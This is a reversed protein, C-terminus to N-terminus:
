RRAASSQELNRRYVQIDPRAVYSKFVEEGWKQQLSALGNAASTLYLQANDRDNAKQSALGAILWARWNSESLGAGAFFTQAHKAMDIATKADGAALAAEALALQTRAILLPDALPVAADSAQQCLAQGAPARGELAQSLGMLYKGQVAVFKDEAGALELAQRSQAGAEPLRRESLAIQAEVLSIAAQLATFSSGKQKAIDSAEGLLKRAQDNQGLWWLTAGLNMSAYGQYLQNGMSKYLEYSKGLHSRAEAFSEQDFLLNGISIQSYAIQAQDGTQEALKLQEQFSQLAANYDGKQKYARGRLLLAQSTETQYGGTQYFALAQEDYSLGRDTEGRQIFLSALSLRARAENQQGGYRQAAQLGEQFYKEADTYNGRALYVNGVDISGRAMLSEMQNAQALAVAESAYHQSLDTNGEKISVSSLQFLIKIQQYMSNVVKAMDRAQELQARAEVVKGAIDNLVVGRQFAVEARGEVNGLAQYVTEARDFAANAEALNHKRGYLVGLRLFATANQADRKTATVYSEIAKDLQNDKEYARGLDVYVHSQDPQRRAIESYAAIARAFDRRVTATIADLYLADVPTFLSRDPTLEGVRLLEDKAKGSYDLEMWAEALRAHALAFQDDSRIALELAKSAQFFSGARLANAGAEYLRQAEATPKHPNARMLFWGGLVLAVMVLLGAAVYGISLRPRRFIDSLTGLTGTPRTDVAPSTMRTVTRDLPRTQSDARLIQLEGILEAANQYRAQPKKELAKLTIRDLEANVDSNFQSPPPPDDRIVKTCIEIRSVGDFPPKGAICEYLLTGLSFLDSRADIEVGLAQEPSLYMPTGVVVGEQTQANLLTQREPDNMELADPNVQKALGFDLVKVEGRHDIAVNSPKIDRHVIGHRHAEALAGAVQEIIQLARPITLRENHMLEGLTEGKVLEMVIYPQGDASEGYDHVTAIHPHSLGSVARAERLFRSRFHAGKETRGANLTKIAVRRGLLTDEAIYVTGMGGEGLKEVIRYHSITQGIM